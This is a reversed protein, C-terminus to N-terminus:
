DLGFLSSNLYKATYKIYDKVNWHECICEFQGDLILSVCCRHAMDGMGMQSQAIVEDVGTIYGVRDCFM